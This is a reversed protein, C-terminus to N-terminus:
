PCYKLQSDQHLSCLLLLPAAMRWAWGALAVEIYQHWQVFAGPRSWNWPHPSPAPLRPLISSHLDFLPVVYLLGLLCTVCPSPPSTPHILFRFHFLRLNFSLKLSYSFSHVVFSSSSVSICFCNLLYNLPFYLATVPPHHLPFVHVTSLATGSM